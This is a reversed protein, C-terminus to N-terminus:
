SLYAGCALLTFLASGLAGLSTGASVLPLLLILYYSSNIGGTFGILLYCLALKVLASVVAGRASQFFAVKPEVVQLLALAGLLPIEAPHPATSAWALASFLLLWVLDRSRLVRAM